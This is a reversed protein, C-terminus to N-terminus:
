NAMDIRCILSQAWIALGGYQPHSVPMPPRHKSIGIDFMNEVDKIENILMNYVSTAAKTYM